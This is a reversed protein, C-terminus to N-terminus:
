GSTPSSNDGGTTTLGFAVQDGESRADLEANALM